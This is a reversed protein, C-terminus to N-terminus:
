GWRRPGGHDSKGLVDAEGKAHEELSRGEGDDGHDRESEPDAGIGREEGDHVADQEVRQGVRLRALQNGDVLAISALRLRGDAIEIEEVPLALVAGERGHGHIAVLVVVEGATVTRCLPHVAEHDGRLEQGREADVRRDAAIEVSGVIAQAGAGDREEAIAEPMALEPAQGRDKAM